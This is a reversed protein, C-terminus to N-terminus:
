KKLDLAKKAIQAALATREPVDELNTLIAVAFRRDPLLYLMGSAGPTSGGHFAEREGYWTEDPFLGWGLGYGTAKGDPLRVPRIMTEFTEKAILQHNMVAAAFRALDPATTIFGGAPLKSSMDVGRANKLRGEADLRDGAARHPIIAAPDDDRTRDMGAPEFIQSRMSQLYPVGAAGELVCGLVDYGFTSYQYATGPEFLLPDDSFIALPDIVNDYHVTNFLEEEENSGGYHRIGATHSLIQRTNIPWRKRPFAPCYRQIPVDLDIRDREVLQMVATATMAKGISATRYETEPTAPVENELDAMGFGASWALRGDLVIAVSLGPIHNDSMSETLLREIEKTIGPSRPKQAEVRAPFVLSLAILVPITGRM